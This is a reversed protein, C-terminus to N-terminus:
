ASEVHKKLEFIYQFSRKILKWKVKWSSGSGGKAEGAVRKSFYVPFSIVKGMKKAQYQFYLDLSFDFPAKERISDFFIKSFLKPQANIETLRKKLVLSALVGMGYSFLAESWKRNRRFGKVLTHTTGETQMLEFARLIDMPDTQQDAHTWSLYPTECADLGALIGYGYGQNKAVEVLKFRQGKRKELATRFIAASGDNSGNNVLVIQLQPHADHLQDLRSFLAELNAAENYCPLVVSLEM